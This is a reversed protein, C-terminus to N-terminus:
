EQEIVKIIDEAIKSASVQKQANTNKSVEIWKEKWSGRTFGLKHLGFRLYDLKTILIKMDSIIADALTHPFGEGYGSPQIFIEGTMFIDSQQVYGVNRYKLNKFLSEVLSSNRCGVVNINVHDDFLNSVEYVSDAISKIKSDRQVLVAESNRTYNRGVGGSGPIWHLNSPQAFLRLFRFDAYNQILLVTEKKRKYILLFILRFIKYNRLRGFGNLIIFCRGRRLMMCLLNSKLNSSILISKKNFLIETLCEAAQMFSDFFSLKKLDYGKAELQEILNGRYRVNYLKRDNVLLIQNKPLTKADDGM